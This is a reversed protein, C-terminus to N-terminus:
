LVKHNQNNLSNEIKAITEATPNLYEEESIGYNIWEGDELIGVLNMMQITYPNINQNINNEKLNNISSKIDYNNEEPNTFEKFM